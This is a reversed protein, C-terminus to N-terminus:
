LLRQLAELYVQEDPMQGRQAAKALTQELCSLMAHEGQHPNAYKHLMRQYVSRIGAPRDAQVQELLAIHLGMHMFPNTEGPAAQYDPDATQLVAHYEPHQAIVSDILQEMPSLPQQQQRKRWVSFFVQRIDERTEGTLM